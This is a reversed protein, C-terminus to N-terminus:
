LQERSTECEITRGRGRRRVAGSELEAAPNCAQDLRCACAPAYAACRVLCTSLFKMVSRAATRFGHFLVIIKQLRYQRGLFGGYNRCTWFRGCLKIAVEPRSPVSLAAVLEEGCKPVCFAFQLVCGHMHTCTYTYDPGCAYALIRIVPVLHVITPGM